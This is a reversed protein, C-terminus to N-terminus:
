ATQWKEEESNESGEALSEPVAVKQLPILLRRLAVCKRTVTNLRNVTNQAKVRKLKIHSLVSYITSPSIKLELAASKVDGEESIAEIIREEYPSLLTIATVKLLLEEQM